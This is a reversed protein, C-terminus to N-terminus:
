AGPRLRQRAPAATEVTYEGRKVFYHFRKPSEGDLGKEGKKPDAGHHKSNASYVYRYKPKAKGTPVRRLYKHQAGKILEDVFALAGDLDSKLLSEFELDSVATDLDLM